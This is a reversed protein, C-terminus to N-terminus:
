KQRDKKPAVKTTQGGSPSPPLQFRPLEPSSRINIWEQEKSDEGCRRTRRVKCCRRWSITDTLEELGFSERLTELAQEIATFVAKEKTKGATAAALVMSTAMEGVYAADVRAEGSGTKDRHKKLEEPFVDELLMRNLLKVSIKGEKRYWRDLMEATEQSLPIGEFLADDHISGGKIVWNLDRVLAEDSNMDRAEASFKDRLFDFFTKRKLKSRLLGPDILDSLSLLPDMNEKSAAEEVAEECKSLGFEEKDVYRAYSEATYSYVYCQEMLKGGSCKYLEHASVGTAESIRLAMPWPLRRGGEEYKKWASESVGVM